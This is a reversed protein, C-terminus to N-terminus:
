PVQTNELGETLVEAQAGVMYEPRQGNGLGVMRLLPSSFGSAIIVMEARYRSRGTGNTAGVSVGRDSIEVSEARPGLVYDAGAKMARQALSDVYAVRDIILAQTTDRAIRYRTGGPSVVTAASAERYVHAADPPFRQACETGIIGTCLKDGLNHRWDLVAVRYGKAALNFAAINGGPGAGIVIVDHM